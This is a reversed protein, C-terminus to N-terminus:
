GNYGITKLYNEAYQELLLRRTTFFNPWKDQFWQEAMKTFVKKDKRKAKAIQRNYENRVKLRQDKLRDCNLNLIEITKEVLKLLDSEIGAVQTDNPLLEGTRKDFKFLSPTALINLPNLLSGECQESLYGKSILYNKYSDCSLNAPLPHQSKADDGGICVGIVNNWDLGWNKAVNSNDSKPHFHEIRQKHAPQNGVKSECYACLEGQDNFIQRRIARYDNGGNANKFDEWCKTPHHTAFRTLVNSGPTKNIKKM